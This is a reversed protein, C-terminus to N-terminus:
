DLRGHSFARRSAEACVLTVPDGVELSPRGSYLAAQTM